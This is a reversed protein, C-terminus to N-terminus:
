KQATYGNVYPYVKVSLEKQHMGKCWQRCKEIAEAESSAQVHPETDHRYAGYYTVVGVWSQMTCQAKNDM